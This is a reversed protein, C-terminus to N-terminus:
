RFQSVMRVGAFAGILGLYFVIGGLADINAFEKYIVSGSLLSAATFLLYQVPIVHSAAHAHMAVDLYRLQMVISLVLLAVSVLLAPSFLIGADGLAHKATM